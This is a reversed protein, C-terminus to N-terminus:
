RKDTKRSSTGTTLLLVATRTFSHSSLAQGKSLPVGNEAHMLTGRFSTLDAFKAASSFTGIAECFAGFRINPKKKVKKTKGCAHPTHTHTHGGSKTRAMGVTPLTQTHVHTQRVCCDNETKMKVNLRTTLMKANPEHHRSYTM